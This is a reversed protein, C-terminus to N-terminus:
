TAQVSFSENAFNGLGDILGHPVAGPEVEDTIAVIAVSIKPPFSNAHDTLKTLRLFGIFASELEYRINYRLLFMVFCASCTFVKIWTRKLILPKKHSALSAKLESLKSVKSLSSTM